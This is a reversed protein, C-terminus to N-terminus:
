GSTSDNSGLGFKEKASACVASNARTGSCTPEAIVGRGSTVGAGPSISCPNGSSEM